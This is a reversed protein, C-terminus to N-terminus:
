EKSFRQSRVVEYQQLQFFDFFKTKGGRLASKPCGTCFNNQDKQKIRFIRKVFGLQFLKSIYNFINKLNKPGGDLCTNKKISHQTDFSPLFSSNM